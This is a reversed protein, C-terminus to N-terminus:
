FAYSITMSCLQVNFDSVSDDLTSKNENVIESLLEEETFLEYPLMKCYSMIEWLTVGFSYVDSKTSFKGQLISEYSMWRVPLIENYYENKYESIFAGSDSIKVKFNTTYILCNRAALDRHIFGRSHLDQM